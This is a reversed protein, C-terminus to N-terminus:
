FDSPLLVIGLLRYPTKKLDRSFLHKKKYHIDMGKVDILVTM